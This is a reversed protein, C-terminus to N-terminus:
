EREKHYAIFFLLVFSAFKWGGPLCILAVTFLVAIVANYLLLNTSRRLTHSAGITISCRM